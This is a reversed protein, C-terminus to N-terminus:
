KAGIQQSKLFVIHMYFNMNIKQANKCSKDGKRRFKEFFKEKLINNCLIVKIKKLDHCIVHYPEKKHIFFVFGFIYISIQFISLM